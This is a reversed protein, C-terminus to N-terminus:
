YVKKAHPVKKFNIWDFVKKLEEQIINQAQNMDQKRRHINKDAVNKLHTITLRFITKHQDIDPNLNRPVGLDIALQTQNNKHNFNSSNLLFSKSSTAAFIIDYHHAHSPLKDFPLIKLDYKQALLNAKDQSRNCLNISPHGLASLKQILRKAMIGTGLILIKKGFYDLCKERMAEISISSISYSGQSIKTEHRCRKGTAIASQLVKNILPSTAQYEKTETYAQKIQGLIENEGFVMSKMGCSVEFLHILAQQEKKQNFMSNLINVTLQQTSALLKKLDSAAKEFALYEFYIEVRNCTMLIFLGKINNNPSALNYLSKLYNKAVHLKELDKVAFHEYSCGLYGLNM